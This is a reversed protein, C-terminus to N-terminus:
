IDKLYSTNMGLARKMINEVGHAITFRMTNRANLNTPSLFVSKRVQHIEDLNVERNHPKEDIFRELKELNGCKLIGFESNLLSCYMEITDM